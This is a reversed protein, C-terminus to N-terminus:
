QKSRSKLILEAYIARSAREPFLTCSWVRTYVDSDIPFFKVFEEWIINMINSENM